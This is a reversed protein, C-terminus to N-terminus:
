GRRRIAERCLEVWRKFRWPKNQCTHTDALIIELICDKAKKLSDDLYNKIAAEDFSLGSLYVPHPKFSCIYDGKLQLACKELDAFPSVSIRRINQIQKVYSMKNELGECCGYGNLGFRSLLRREASICFEETQSPSVSSMEQAEASAWMDCPRVRKPNFDKRPLESTYGFGGSSQYSGDNNLDFLGQSECQDVISMYGTEFFNILEKAFEPEDYLDYMMQELGRLHIYYYMIHFSVYDVGKLQVDLLDGFIEKREELVPLTAAEDYYIEPVRLKEIDKASNIIPKFSYAGTKDSSDNHQIKVGWDIDLNINCDPLGNIKKHVILNHEIVSDDGINEHRYIRSLLDFEINSAEESTCKLSSPPIIERWSGEPFVVVMPTGKELRNHATWRARRQDMVDLRGIEDVRKALETLIKRDSNNIM